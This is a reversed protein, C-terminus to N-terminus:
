LYTITLGCQVNLAVCQMVYIKGTTFNLPLPLDEADVATLLNQKAVLVSMLEFGQCTGWMPFFDGDKDKAQM